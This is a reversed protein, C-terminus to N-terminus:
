LRRKSGPKVVEWKENLRLSQLLAKQYPSKALDFLNQKEEGVVSLFPALNQFCFCPKIADLEESKKLLFCAMSWALPNDFDAPMDPREHNELGEFCVIEVVMRKAMELCRLFSPSNINEYSIDPFMGKYISCNKYLNGDKDELCGDEPDYTNYWGPKKILDNTEMRMFLELPTKGEKNSHFNSMRVDPHEMADLLTFNRIRAAHHYLTDGNQYGWDAGYGFEKKLMALFYVYNMKLGAQYWDVRTVSNVALSLAESFDKRAAFKKLISVVELVVRPGIEIDSATLGNQDEKLGTASLILNHWSKEEEM